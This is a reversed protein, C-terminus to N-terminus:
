PGPRETWFIDLKGPWFRPLLCVAARRIVESWIETPRAHTACDLTDQQVADDLYNSTIGRARSGLGAPGCDLRGAARISGGNGTEFGDGGADLM